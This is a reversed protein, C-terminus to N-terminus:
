AAGGRGAAMARPAGWDTMLDYVEALFRNVVSQSDGLGETPAYQIFTEAAMQGIRIFRVRYKADGFNLRWQQIEKLRRLYDEFEHTTKQFTQHIGASIQRTARLYDVEAFYGPYAWHLHLPAENEEGGGQEFDVIAHNKEVAEEWDPDKSIVITQVLPRAEGNQAFGNALILSNQFISATEPPATQGWIRGSSFLEQRGTFESEWIARVPPTFWTEFSPESATSDYAKLFAPFYEYIARRALHLPFYGIQVGQHIWLFSELLEAELFNTRIDSSPDTAEIQELVPRLRDNLFFILNAGGLRERDVQTAADPLNEPQPPM